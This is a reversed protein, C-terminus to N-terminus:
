FELSAGTARGFVVLAMVMFCVRFASHLSCYPSTPDENLNGPEYAHAAVDLTASDWSGLEAVLSLQGSAKKFAGSHSHFRGAIATECRKKLPM